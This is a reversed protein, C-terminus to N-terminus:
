CMERLADVARLNETMVKLRMGAVFCAGLERLRFEEYGGGWRGVEKENVGELNPALELVVALMGM